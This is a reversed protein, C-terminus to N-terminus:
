RRQQSLFGRKWKCYGSQSRTGVRQARKGVLQMMWATDVPSERPCRMGPEVEVICLWVEEGGSM